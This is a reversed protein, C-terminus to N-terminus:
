RVRRKRDQGCYLRGDPHVWGRQRGVSYVVLRGCAQCRCPGLIIREVWSAASPEVSM